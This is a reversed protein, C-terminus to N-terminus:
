AISGVAADRAEQYAMRAARRRDMTEPSMGAPVAKYTRWTRLVDRKLHPPVEGWCPGCMLHGVRVNRGCGTPCDGNM